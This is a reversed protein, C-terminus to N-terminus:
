NECDPCVFKQKDDKTLGVCEEHVYTRCVFCMRMDKMADERCIKCYWSEKKRNKTNKGNAFKSSNAPQVKVNTKSIVANICSEKSFLDKKLVVARSNISKQRNSVKPTAKIPTPLLDSFTSTNTVEADNSLVEEDSDELCAAETSDSEDSSLVGARNSNSLGSPGAMPFTPRLPVSIKPSSTALPEAQDLDPLYSATSPKFADEPIAHPDYPYLGTAKFGSKINSPTMSRDWAPTFVKGFRQKTM